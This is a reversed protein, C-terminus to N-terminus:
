ILRSYAHKYVVNLQLRVKTCGLEELEKGEEEQIRTVNM